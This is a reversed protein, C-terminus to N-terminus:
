AANSRDERRASLRVVENAIEKCETEIRRPVIEGNHLDAIQNGIEERGRFAPKEGECRATDILVDHSQTM